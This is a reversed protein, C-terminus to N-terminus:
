LLGVERLLKLTGELDELTNLDVPPTTDADIELGAHEPLLEIGTVVPFEYITEVFYRETKARLLYDILQRAAEPHKSTKVIGAGAVNVMNGIDGAAFGTQAVPFEPDATTFRLLYYHNPLGFDVEGAALAQIIATNKPYAKAGNAEMDELWQRARPEGHLNRMATVFAQFSANSPAWGVRGRYKPDTLDFVSAPLEEAAVRDPRYALTRLRLSTAVWDREASIYHDAVPKLTEAPLEALLGAESLAGLAGADQALVVDAPSRDGETQLKLAIEATKGYVRNVKVGTDAEFDNFVKDMFSKSRGSYVTLEVPEGNRAEPGDAPAEPASESCAAALLALVAFPVLWVSLPWKM